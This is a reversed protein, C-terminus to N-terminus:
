PQSILTHKAGFSQLDDSNMQSAASSTARCTCSGSRGRTSTSQVESSDARMFNADRTGM